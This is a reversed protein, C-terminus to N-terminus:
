KEEKAEQIMFTMKLSKNIEPHHIGGSTYASEYYADLVKDVITKLRSAKGKIVMKCLVDGEDEKLEKTSMNTLVNKALKEITEQNVFSPTDKDTIGRTLIISNKTNSATEM